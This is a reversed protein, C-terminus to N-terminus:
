RNANDLGLIHASAQAENRFKLAEQPNGFNRRYFAAKQAPDKLSMFEHVLPGAGGTFSDDAAQFGSLDPHKAKYANLNQGQALNQRLLGRVYDMAGHITQPAATADPTGSLITAARSDSPASTTLQTRIIGIDKELLQRAYTDEKMGVAAAAKSIAAAFKGSHIQEALDDIQQTTQIGAPATKVNASVQNARDVDSGATGTQRAAAGSVQPGTPNPASGGPMNLQGSFTGRNLNQSAANTTPQVSPKATMSAAATNLIQQLQPGQASPSISGGFSQLLRSLERDEPYQQRLSELADTVKTHDVSADGALSGIVNGIQERKSTTLNQVAQKNQVVENAQSLLSTAIGQGYTPAVKSIDDALKVRNLSGDSNTYQGSQAGTLALKQAAQLEGNKQQDQQAAAQASQQQYAGTQLNQQQQQVGLIGSRLGIMKSISGLPDPQIGTNGVPIMEPM